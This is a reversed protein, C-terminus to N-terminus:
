ARDLIRDPRAGFPARPYRPTRPIGARRRSVSEPPRRISRRPPRRRRWTAPISSLVVDVKGIPGGAAKAAAEVGERTFARGSPVPDAGLHSTMDLLVGRTVIGPIEHTGFMKLGSPDVVESATRGNHYRHDIGIHGLGDIQSGIGISTMVLDDNGTLANTGLNTGSRDGLQHVVLNFKRPGYTVSEPGTVM